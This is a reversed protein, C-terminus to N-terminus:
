DSLYMLLIQKYGIRKSLLCVLCSKDSYLKGIGHEGPCMDRGTIHTHQSHSIHLDSERALNKNGYKKM